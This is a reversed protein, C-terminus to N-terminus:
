EGLGAVAERLAAELHVRDGSHSACAVALEAETLGLADAAGSEALPLAQFLKVASRPYIPAAVDGLSLLLRGRVDAIAIAGRHRSEVLDGRFIEVLVPNSAAPESM